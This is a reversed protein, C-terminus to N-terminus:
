RPKESEPSPFINLGWNEFGQGVKNRGGSCYFKRKLVEFARNEQGAKLVSM